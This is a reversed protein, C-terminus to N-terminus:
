QRLTSGDVIKSDSDLFPIAQVGSHEFEFRIAGDRDTRFVKAGADNYITEVEPNLRKGSSSVVVFEPDCWAALRSPSSHLSGHHPAMLVDVDIPTRSLLLEMGNSELDGTLLLKRRAHEFLLVVSNSNDNGDTGFEPPSLVSVGVNDGVLQDGIALECVSVNNQRLVDLLVQTSPSEDGMMAKSMYVRGVSFKACLDPVANFHDVDAHSLIIAELHEIRHEWLVSAVNRAAFTSSGLSGADYLMNRGDPLEILVGTGHGVDIFTVALNRAEKRLRSQYVADPVLWGFVLWVWIWLFFWKASVRTGPFVALFFVGIYFGAVSVGSPGMTWVHGLPVGNALSILWEILGLNWDCFRGFATALGGSVWGFVLVGLGGYLALAIPLLLIPNVILAVPAVLNFRYAVLPMAILWILGSVLVAFRTKRGLWYVLRVHFPRTNAILRKIPDSPPPWVLWHRGFTITAVALFSLQPGLQFLDMPNIVLVVCAAAALWNFSLIPQGCLRGICLLVILIAARSVPARFEVLWAYFIVFLITAILFTERKIWGVRFFFFFVGALIGVHLGSIALLHVTGTMLFRERRELTLQSRNGLLVASALGAREEPVYKWTIENLKRRLTSLLRAGSWSAVPEVVEVAEAHLAHLTVSKGQSRYFNRFDFQGSNTPEGIRVITGFIKIRDGSRIHDCRQHIVLDAQGSVTQWQQGNRLRKPRVDVRTRDVKPVANLEGPDENVAQWRPESAVIAEVCVPTAENSSIISIDSKGVWNWRGHHWLGSVSAIGITLLLSSVALRLYSQQNLPRILRRVFIGYWAIWSLLGLCLYVVPSTDLFRDFLLGCVMGALILVM